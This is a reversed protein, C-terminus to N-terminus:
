PSRITDIGYSLGTRIAKSSAKILLGSNSAKGRGVSAGGGGYHQTGHHRKQRQERALEEELAQHERAHTRGCYDHTRYGEQYCPRSCGPYKCVKPHGAYTTSTTTRIVYRCTYIHAINPTNQVHRFITQRTLSRSFVAREHM